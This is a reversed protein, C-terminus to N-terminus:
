EFDFHYEGSLRPLNANFRSMFFMALSLNNPMQAVGFENSEVYTYRIKSLTIGQKRLAEEIVDDVVSDPNFIINVKVSKM